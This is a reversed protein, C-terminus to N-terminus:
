GGIVEPWLEFGQLRPKVGELKVVVDTRSRIGVLIDELNM